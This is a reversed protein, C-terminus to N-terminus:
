EMVEVKLSRQLLDKIEQGYEPGAPLEWDTILKRRTAMTVTNSRPDVGAKEVQRWTVGYGHRQWLPLENFVIGRGQLLSQKAEVSQGELSATAITDSNGERRLMWYAHANLANRQADAMRWRFYDVVVVEDPLVCLRCDMCAPRGLAHTIAASAEGALVSILKREKRQFTAEDRHLLLSIEDSQVYAHLARFGCDMLHRATAEMADRFRVDYPAEFRMIEKTLRTFGRGDVRAVIFVDAAVHRDSETEFVRMKADLDDFKM